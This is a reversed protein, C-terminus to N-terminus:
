CLGLLFGAPIIKVPPKFMSSHFSVLNSDIENKEQNGRDCLEAQQRVGREEEKM